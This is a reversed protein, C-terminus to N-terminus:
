GSSEGSVDAIDRSVEDPGGYNQKPLNRLADVVEDGAKNQRAHQVLDDRSSPYGVGSLAKQVEIFTPQAM